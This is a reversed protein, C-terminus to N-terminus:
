QNIADDIHGQNKLEKAYTYHTNRLRVRNHKEAVQIAEEWHGLCRHMRAVLDWRESEVFLREAEAQFFNPWISIDHM